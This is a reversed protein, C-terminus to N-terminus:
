CNKGACTITIRTIKDVVLANNRGYVPTNSDLRTLVTTCIDPIFGRILTSSTSKFIDIYWNGKSINLFIHM